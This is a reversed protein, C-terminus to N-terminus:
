RLGNIRNPDYLFLQLYGSDDEVIASETRSNLMPTQIVAGSVSNLIGTQELMKFLRQKVKKRTTQAIEELEPHELSKDTIFTNYDLETLEYDFVRVKESLVELVLDKYIGYAKCLALH